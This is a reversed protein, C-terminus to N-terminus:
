VDINDVKVIDVAFCSLASLSPRQWYHTPAAIFRVIYRENAPLGRIWNLWNVFTRFCSSNMFELTTMDVSVEAVQLRRAHAHVNPIFGELGPVARMDANGQLRVQISSSGLTATAIFEATSVKLEPESM